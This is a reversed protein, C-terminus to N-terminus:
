SLLEHKETQFIYQLHISTGVIRTKWLDAHVFTGFLKESLFLLTLRHLWSLRFAKIVRKFRCSHALQIKGTFRQRPPSLHFNGLMPGRSSSSRSTCAQCRRRLSSDMVTLQRKVMASARM